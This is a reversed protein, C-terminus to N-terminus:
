PWPTNSTASLRQQAATLSQELLILPSLRALATMASMVTQLDAAVAPFAPLQSIYFDAGASLLPQTGLIPDAHDWEALNLNNLHAVLCRTATFCKHLSTQSGHAYPAHLRIIAGNTLAHAVLFTHPPFAPTSHSPLSARFTELRADLGMFEPPHPLGPDRASFAIIRELLISAKASLALSSLGDTDNGNLFQMIQAFSPSWPTFVDQLEDIMRLDTTIQMERTGSPDPLATLSSDSLVFPPHPPHRHSGILHLSSSLALSTATASHSRGQELRGADLYYLSLLIEAQITQLILHPPQTRALDQAVNHIAISLCGDESQAADTVTPSILGPSLLDPHGSPLSSLASQRFRSADLFFFPSTGFRHLFVAVSTIYRWIRTLPESVTRPSVGGAFPEPWIKRRRCNMCAKHLYPSPMRRVGPDSTPHLPNAM